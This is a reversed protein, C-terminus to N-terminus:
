GVALLEGSRILESVAEIDPQLPRDREVFASVARVREYVARTRRGLSGSDRLDAAQCAGLLHMACCRQTLEVVERASRAAAAGM